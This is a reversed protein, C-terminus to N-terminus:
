QHNNIIKFPLSITFTSGKGFDSEVKINGRHAEIIKKAIFLGLGTSKEGGTSKTSTKQFPKFLLNLENKEIGQGQDKVSIIIETTNKIVEVLVETNSNSYKVANTILNTVVQDIKDKDVSILISKEDSHFRLNILKKDSIAKNLMVISSVLSLIDLEVYNLTVMGSEIATVDLIDTVLNLMHLSLSNIHKIFQFQEPTFDDKEEELFESYSFIIGLPNRLDHAAMGLFQNKLNNLEALEVNKKNLERQMDTLENIVQSLQDFVLSGDKRNKEGPINQNKELSRIINTQENNILMMDTIIKEFNVKKLSGFILLGNDILAGGFYVMVSESNKSIELEWGFTIQDKKIQVLFDLSKRISVSNFINVFLKGSLENMNDLISNYYVKKIVGDLDCLLLFGDSNYNM